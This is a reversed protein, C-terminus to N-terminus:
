NRELYIPWLEEVCQNVSMGRTSKIHEALEGPSLCDLMQDYLYYPTNKYARARSIFEAKNRDAANRIRQLADDPIRNEPIYYKINGANSIHGIRKYDGGSMVAKNCLTIGNGLCCMFLDFKQESM